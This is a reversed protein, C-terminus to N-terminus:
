WQCIFVCCCCCVCVGVGVLCAFLSVLAGSLSLPGVKMKIFISCMWIPILIAAAAASLQLYRYNEALHKQRRSYDLLIVGMGGLCFMFGATLGELIFQGNIRPALFQISRGDAGGGLSPPENIMDYIVGSGIFFFSVLVLLYVTMPEPLQVNPKRLRLNPVDLLKFPLGGVHRLTEM